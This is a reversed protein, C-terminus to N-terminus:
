DLPVLRGVALLLPAIGDSSNFPQAFSDIVALARAAARPTKAGLAVKAAYANVVHRVSEPNDEKLKDLIAMMQEWPLLKNILARALEIPGESLVASRLLTAAEKEDTAASCLALNALAQRPSGNAERACIGLIKDDIELEEAEVVPRLLYTLIEQWPVPKLELKTCRTVVAKPVKAADTTTLFWVVHEPPEEMSMLLSDWANGSLRHCENLILAKMRGEHLPRYRLGDTLLRMEDIGNYKAADVEIIDVPEAGLLAAVIRALTTKGIGSNGIFLFAHSSRKEVIKELARVVPEQGIVQDLATPRYKLALTESM